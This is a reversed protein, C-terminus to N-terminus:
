RPPAGQDGPLGSTVCDVHHCQRRRVVFVAVGAVVGLGLLTLAATWVLAAIAVGGLLGGILAPGGCCIAVVTVGGAAFARERM